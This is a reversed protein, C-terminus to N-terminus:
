NLAMFIYLQQTETDSNCRCSKMKVLRIQQMLVKSSQFKKTSTTLWSESPWISSSAVKSYPMQLLSKATPRFKSKLRKKLHIHNRTAPLDWEQTRFFNIGLVTALPITRIKSSLQVKFDRDPIMKTLFEILIKSFFSCFLNSFKSLLM